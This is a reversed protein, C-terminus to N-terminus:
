EKTSMNATKNSLSSFTFVTLVITVDRKLCLALLMTVDGKKFVSHAVIDCGKKFM